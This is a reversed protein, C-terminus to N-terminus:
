NIPRAGAGNYAPYRAAVGKMSTSADGHCDACSKNESGVKRNWATAGDLVWLTGPNATDDDQMARTERGMFDYGSKREALPIEAALTRSAMCLILLALFTHAGRFASSKQMEGHPLPLAGYKRSSVPYEPAKVCPGGGAESRERGGGCAPSAFLLSRRMANMRRHDSGVRNRLLRQRRDM